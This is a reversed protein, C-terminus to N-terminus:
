LTTGWNVKLTQWNLVMSSPQLFAKVSATRHSTLSLFTAPIVPSQPKMIHYCSNARVRVWLGMKMDERQWSGATVQAKEALSYIMITVALLSVRTGIFPRMLSSHPTSSSSSLYWIMPPYFISPNSATSSPSFTSVTLTSGPITLNHMSAKTVKGRARAKRKSHM